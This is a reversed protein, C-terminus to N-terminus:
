EASAADRQMRAAVYVAETRNSVGLLKFSASVHAKVTHESIKLRQAIVKNPLGQVVLLLVERQRRSLGQLGHHSLPEPPSAGRAVRSYKSQGHEAFAEAPLYTGGATVLQLAATLVAYTATKPIFGAAGADIISRIVVPDDEASVVVIRANSFHRRIADLAVLETM